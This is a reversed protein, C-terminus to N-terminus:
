HHHYQLISRIFGDLYTQFPGGEAFERECAQQIEIAKKTLQKRERSELDMFKQVLEAIEDRKALNDKDFERKVRWGIQWDEVIMKANTVQDMMIPFVLMPVGALIAEKTSNWGCHSLFGGISPHCLVSLQDCWPVVLGKGGCIEKLRLTEGRAVWLFRTGSKCLGAAIEDMQSSSISLYSGFSVFLVSNPLQLNLWKLYNLDGNSDEVKFHTTPGITYISCSAKANLADIVEAELEYVSALLLYRAKHIAQLPAKLFRQYNEELRMVTPLDVGRTPSLGPICDVIDNGNVSFMVVSFRLYITRFSISAHILCVEDM